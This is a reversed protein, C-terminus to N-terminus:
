RNKYILWSGKQPTDVEFYVEFPKDKQIEVMSSLYINNGRQRIVDNKNVVTPAESTYSVRFEYPCIYNTCIRISNSSDTFSLEKNTHEFLSSDVDIVDDWPTDKLEKHLLGAQFSDYCCIKVYKLKSFDLEEDVLFEQQRQNFTEYSNIYIEKAKIRDPEEIVKFCLSSDKQMNGTSYYCKDPMAMLLEEVDFIFFVPMPCKPLGLHYAREYYKIDSKDKGLCENYFQTLSKPAFYFRAFRHAKNTRFVNTGASNFFNGEAKNRSELRMSKIIKIANSMHTFHYAKPRCPFHQIFDVINNIQKVFPMDSMDVKNHFAKNKVLVPWNWKDKFKEVLSKSFKIDLSKSALNWDIYETFTELIQNSFRFDERSCIIAWDLHDKYHNLVDTNTVLLHSNKSVVRWDVFDVYDNLLAIIAKRSSLSKWNLENLPVIKLISSTLPFCKLSSVTKWDISQSISDDKALTCILKEDGWIQPTDQQSLANWNLDDNLHDYVFKASPKFTRQSTVVQWNWDYDPKAEVIDLNASFVQRNLLDNYDYDGKPNIKIIQEIDVDHRESLIRFNVFEKFAEIVENLKQKDHTCFIKSNSSLYEWDIKEKYQLLFWGENRLSEFRSLLKFNWRNRNDSLVSKIDAIWAKQKIKLKPNFKFSIDVSESKSLEDWDIFNRCDELDRFVDFEKHQCFYSIDWWYNRKLTTEIILSKLEKFSFQITLAHWAALCKEKSTINTIIYAINDLYNIDLRKDNTLIRPFVVNWDWYASFTKLNDTLFVTNINKSLYTWDWKDVFYQNGLNQLKLQHFMRETLITWDWPYHSGKFKAIVYETSAIASFESWANRDDGIMEDISDISQLFTSNTQIKLLITWNLKKGFFTYLKKDSLLNPNCSITNWQWDFTPNTIIINVDSISKSVNEKGEETVIFSSYKEFFSKDWILHTNCEFGMMYPTSQWSLLGNSVFLDILSPIWIYDKDNFIASSLTGNNKSAKEIAIKFSPNATFTYTWYQDTFIRNFLLTFTLHDCLNLIHNNIFNLDFEKEVKEWDWRKDTYTLIAERIEETDETYRALNVKVIDLHALVFEAPLRKELEAWNWEEQTDRQVLILSEIVSEKRSYDSSLVELDWPYEKFHTILFNDDIRESFIPWDINDKFKDLNECLVPVDCFRSINRWCTQNARDTMVKLLNKDTWVTRSDKTLEEFDVFDFYPKLASYNLIASKDDWLKQFLCEQILNKRRLLNEPKSILETALVAMRDDNMVVPIYEGSNRLLKIQVKKTVLDFYESLTAHYINAKDKSQLELRKILQDIRGYIINEIESDDPWIQGKTQLTTYIGMDKYFPFMLMATSLDSKLMFHEYVDKTGSFFQYHKLQKLSVEGLKTLVIKNESDIVNILHEQEVKKLIDEFMRVEAVDYYVEHKGDKEFDSMSFGLLIGLSRKDYTGGNTSLVSCIVYYLDDLPEETYYAVDCSYRKLGWKTFTSYIYEANNIKDLIQNM